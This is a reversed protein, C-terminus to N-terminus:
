FFYIRSVPTKNKLNSRYHSFSQFQYVFEDILEWLWQDPLELQVPEEANLIYNFLDCYNFFSGLRQELNPQLRAYIHRFYLEKYLILFVADNEVIDVIDQEDPWSSQDFFQESIKLFTNEYLNQVEFVQGKHICNRFYVLFKRVM